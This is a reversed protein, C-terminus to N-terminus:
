SRWPKAALGMHMSVWGQSVEEFRKKEIERYNIKVSFEDYCSLQIKKEESKTVNEVAEQKVTAPSVYAGPKDATSQSM